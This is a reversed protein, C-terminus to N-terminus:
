WKDIMWCKLNMSTLSHSLFFLRQFRENLFIYFDFTQYNKVIVINLLAIVFRM